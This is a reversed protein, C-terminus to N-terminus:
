ILSNLVEQPVTEAKAGNLWKNIHKSTTVSFKTDTKIFGSRSPLYAAVPTEYSFFIITGDNMIAETQNSGIPKIKM